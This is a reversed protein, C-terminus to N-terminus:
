TPQSNRSLPMMPIKVMNRARSTCAKRHISSVAASESKTGHSQPTQCRDSAFCRGRLILALILIDFHLQPLLNEIFQFGPSLDNFRGRKVVPQFRNGIGNGSRRLGSVIVRELEVQNM